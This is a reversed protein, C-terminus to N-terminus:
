KNELMEKIIKRNDMLPSLSRNSHLHYISRAFLPCINSSLYWERDLLNKDHFVANTGIIRYFLGNKYAEEFDQISSGSFIPLSVACIINQAGWEKLAKMAKLLTGGTGLIDDAMFITKGEVSGLLRINTINNQTASLSVRSYDREKYIMGLSKNLATSYFKNRDVSGTDPSIMVLDPNNLDAITSLLKLILYSAHLNELRLRNFSNEIEKSHLDLTIIRAVGFYELFQGVRAATLGERGKKKHQRAYPYTPLVVTVRKAGAHLAADVTVLLCFIHDNVSLIYKEKEDSNLYLPYHNEVDQIIYVDMNRVTSLIETKFEGNSFRTFRAPIKFSLAHFQDAPQKLNLTTPQLDLSLNIRKIIEKESLSYKEALFHIKRWFKKKSINELEAIMQDAFAAGGPCALIGIQEPNSYIM